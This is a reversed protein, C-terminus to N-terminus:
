AMVSSSKEKLLFKTKQKWTRKRYSRQFSYAAMGMTKLKPLSLLILRRQWANPVQVLLVRPQKVDEIAVGGTKSKTQSRAGLRRVDSTEAKIGLLISEVAEMDAKTKALQDGTENEPIGRVRIEISKQENPHVRNPYSTADNEASVEKVQKMVAKLNEPTKNLQMQLTTMSNELAVVKDCDASKLLSIKKNVSELKNELSPLMETSLVASSKSVDDLVSSKRTAIRLESICERLLCSLADEKMNGILAHVDTDSAWVVQEVTPYYDKSSLLHSQRPNSGTGPDNENTENM